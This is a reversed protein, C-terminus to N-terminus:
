IELIRFGDEARSHQQPYGFPHAVSLIGEKKEPGYRRHRHGHILLVIRSAFAHIVTQMHRNVKATEEKKEQPLCAPLPLHHSVIIRKETKSQALNKRLSVAMKYALKEDRIGAECDYWESYGRGTFWGTTGMIETQFEHLYLSNSPLYHWGTKRSIRPFLYYYRYAACDWLGEKDIVWIDHNGPVWCKPCFLRISSLFAAVEKSRHSIDGACILLDTDSASNIYATLEKIQNQQDHRHAHIDSCIGIKM